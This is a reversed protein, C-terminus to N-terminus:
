EQTSVRKSTSRKRTGSSRKATTKKATSKNATSTRTASKKATSKKATGTDASEQELEPLDPEAAALLQQEFLRELDAVDLAPNDLGFEGAPAGIQLPPNAGVGGGPPGDLPPNGAAEREDTAPGLPPNDTVLGSGSVASDLPPNTDDAHVDAASWPAPATAARGAPELAPNSIESM